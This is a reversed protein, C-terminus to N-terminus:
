LTNLTSTAVEYPRQRPKELVKGKWFGYIKWVNFLVLIIIFFQYWAFTPVGLRTGTSLRCDIKYALLSQSLQAEGFNEHFQVDAYMGYITVWEGRRNSGAGPQWFAYQGWLSFIILSILIVNITIYFVHNLNIKFRGRKETTKPKNETSKTEKDSDLPLLLIILIILFAIFLIYVNEQSHFFLPLHGIFPIRAIVKGVLQSSSWPVDNSGYKDSRTTIYIQGSINEIKVARHVILEEGYTTRKRYVLIDGTLGSPDANIQTPDIKQVIILDGINLTPFMSDSAVALAPYPTGLAAQAGYYLGLVILFLLAVTIATQFYENKWLKKITEVAM